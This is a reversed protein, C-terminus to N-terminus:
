APTLQKGDFQVATMRGFLEILAIVKGSKTVEEVIGGFTAFPNTNDSVAITSGVPFRKRATAKESAEEEQRYIRAARTDDFQMNIEALFIDEVVNASVPIPCGDIGLIAEVGDCGTVRYFNLDKKVFGVFMYRPMLPSERLSYTHTKHNKVEVRQRPLYTDYGNKRINEDAKAEAKVATRVVYWRKDRDIGAKM